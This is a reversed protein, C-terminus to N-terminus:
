FIGTVSFAALFVSFDREDADNNVRKCRPDEPPRAGGTRSAEKPEGVRGEKPPPDAPPAGGMPTAKCVRCLACVLVLLLRSEM